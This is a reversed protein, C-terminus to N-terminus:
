DELETTADRCSNFIKFVTGDLNCIKFMKRLDKSMGCLNMRGHQETIRRQARIIVSICESSFFKVHEFNLQLRRPQEEGIFELLEDAFEHIQARDNISSGLHVVTIGDHHTLQVHKREAM